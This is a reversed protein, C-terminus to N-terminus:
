PVTVYLAECLVEAARSARRSQLITALNVLTANGSREAWDIFDHLSNFGGRHREQMILEVARKDRLFLQMHKPPSWNPHLANLGANDSRVSLLVLERM